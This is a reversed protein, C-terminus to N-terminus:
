GGLADWDYGTSATSRLRVTEEEKVDALDAQLDILQIQKATDRITADDSMLGLVMRRERWCKDNSSSAGLTASGLGAVTLGIPIGDECDSLPMNPAYASAAYGDYMDSYDQKAENFIQQNAQTSKQKADLSQIQGQATFAAAQASSSAFASTNTGFDLGTPEGRGGALAGPAIALAALLVIVTKM